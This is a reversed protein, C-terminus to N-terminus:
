GTPITLETSSQQVLEGGDIRRIGNVFSPLLVFAAFRERWAVAADPDVSPSAPDDALLCARAVRDRGLQGALTQDVSGNTPEDLDHLWDLLERETQFGGWLESLVAAQERDKRELTPRMAVHDQAAPDVKEPSVESDQLYEGAGGRLANYARNCAPRIVLRELRRRYSRAADMSPLPSGDSAFRERDDGVVLSAALTRDRFLDRPHWAEALTGLTRPIARQYWAIADRATPFGDRLGFEVPGGGELLQRQDIQLARLAPQTRAPGDGGDPVPDTM